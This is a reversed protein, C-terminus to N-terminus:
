TRQPRKRAPDLRTIARAAELDHRLQANDITLRRLHALAAELQDALRANERRLRANQAAQDQCLGARLNGASAPAMAANAM